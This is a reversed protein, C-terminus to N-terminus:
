AFYVDYDGYNVVIYIITGNEDRVLTYEAAKGDTFEVYIINDYDEYIGNKIVDSFGSFYIQFNGATDFKIYNESANFGNGFVVRPQVVEDTTHDVVQSIRFVTTTIDDTNDSIEGEEPQYETVPETPVETHATTETGKDSVSVRDKETDNNKDSGGQTAFYIGLASLLIIIICFLAITVKKAM